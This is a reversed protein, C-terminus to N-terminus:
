SLGLLFAVTDMRDAYDTLNPFQARGFPFSGAYWANDSVIGQIKTHNLDMLENLENLDNYMQYHLVAVPSGFDEAQRILVFGNDLHQLGNVLFIAKSYEYNNFYKSHEAVASFNEFSSFLPEFNFDPPVFLTSVNRCGLGFFSFVDIGLNQLAEISENGKLIGVGHRNRRILNPYKGFYYDFYRGSNDSGTAIVADFNSIKSETFSIYPEFEPEIALLMESLAPLLVRDQHSLKGLFKHGTLLVHMFDQFGVLPINGSMIVAITKSQKNKELLPYKELFKKLNNEDMMQAVSDLMQHISNITFWPNNGLANHMVDENFVSTIKSAYFDNLLSRLQVGLQSFATIRQQIFIM